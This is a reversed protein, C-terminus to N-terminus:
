DNDIGKRITQGVGVGSLREEAAFKELEGFTIIWRGGSKRGLASVNCLQSLRVRSIGLMKAAELLGMPTLPNLGDQWNVGDLESWSVITKGDADKIKGEISHEQIYDLANFASKFKQSSATITFM